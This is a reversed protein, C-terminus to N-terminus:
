KFIMGSFEALHRRWLMWVHGGPTEKTEVKAGKEKLWGTFGRQFGILGDDTGCAMWFVKLTNVKKIDLNPWLDAPTNGPLGGSSFGGIYAFTDLNSLGTFLSEAGGMSLGAIARDERKASVRFDKEVAPQVEQLLADRFKTYNELVRNRDGFGRGGPSAFDPVGYGLTMVVVMPKTKGQAILNDLVVNAKGVTTWGEATDSYGHLLYLVPLKTKGERYGPPTYVFYDRQDGIIKSKYFRHHVEGHPVDQVEWPEPPTGPVTVMNGVWILNPKIQPNQPDLTATGDVNFSYGYIDPVLTKTTASWVGNPGKTMPMSSAGELSVEVKQANPSRLRFTVTRDAHVEPSTTREQVPEPKAAMGSGLMAVFCVVSFSAMTGLM